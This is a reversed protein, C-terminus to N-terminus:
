ALDYIHSNKGRNKLDDKKKKNKFTKKCDDNCM